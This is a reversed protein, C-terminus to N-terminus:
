RNPKGQRELQRLLEAHLAEAIEDACAECLDIGTADDLAGTTSGDARLNTEDFVARRSLIADRDGPTRCRDCIIM